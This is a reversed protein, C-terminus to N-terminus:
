FRGINVSIFNKSGSRDNLSKFYEEVRYIHIMDMKTIGM